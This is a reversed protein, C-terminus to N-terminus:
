EHSTCTTNYKVNSWHSSQGKIEKTCGEDSFVQASVGDCPHETSNQATTLTVLFLALPILVSKKM